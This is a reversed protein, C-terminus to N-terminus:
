FQAFNLEYEKILIDVRHQKAILHLDGFRYITYYVAGKKISFIDLYQQSRTPRQITSM